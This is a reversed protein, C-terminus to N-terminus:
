MDEQPGQKRYKSLLDITLLGYRECGDTDTDSLMGHVQERRLQAHELREIRAALDSIRCGIEEATLM